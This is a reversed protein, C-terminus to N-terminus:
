SSAGNAAGPNPHSESQARAWWMRVRALEDDSLLRKPLYYAGHATPFALLFTRTEVLRVFGSWPLATVLAGARLRYGDPTLEHTQGTVAHPDGRQMRWAGLWYIGRWLFLVGALTLAPLAVLAATGPREPHVALSLAGLTAVALLATIGLAQVTRWAWAGPRHRMVDRVARTGDRFSWAARVEIRDTAEDM